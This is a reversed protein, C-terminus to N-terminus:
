SQKLDRKKKLLSFTKGQGMPLMKPDVYMCDLKGSRVSKANNENDVSVYDLVKM